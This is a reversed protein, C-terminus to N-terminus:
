FSEETGAKLRKWNERHRVGIIGALVVGTLAMATGQWFAAFPLIAAAILSALSAKRGALFIIVWLTAVVLVPLPALALMVGASTAVGKGGRFGLYVPWCHGVVTAVGALCWAWPADWMWMAGLVPLAGKAVDAALTTAGLGRSTTRLVNTAGINGSGQVRPDVESYLTTLVLGSPFSGILYCLLVYFADLM